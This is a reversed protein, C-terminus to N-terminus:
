PFIVVKKGDIINIGKHPKSLRQGALDYIQSGSHIVNPKNITIDEIATVYPETSTIECGWSPVLDSYEETDDQRILWASIVKAETNGEVYSMLTVKNIEDKFVEPNFIITTSTGDLSIYDVKESKDGSVVINLTGEQPVEAMELRIGKYNKMKLPVDDAFIDLQSWIGKFTVEHVLQKRLYEVDCSAYRGWGFCSEVNQDNSLLAKSSNVKVVYQGPYWSRLIVMELKEGIQSKDFIITTSKSKVDQTQIGKEGNAVLQLMGMEPTDALELKLGVYKDSRDENILLICDAGHGNFTVTYCDDFDDFTQLKSEYWDGYYAKLIASAEEKDYFAPLNPTMRIGGWLFSAINHANTQQLFYRSYDADKYEWEGVITPIGRSSFYNKINNFIGDVDENCGMWYTHLGFIIHNDSIDEPVKMQRMPEAWGDNPGPLASYINILLNRSLNNGGTSRVANVFSQAYDNIAKYSQEIHEPGYDGNPAIWSGYKDLMENYGEFVLHEDYDKFEEAIQRWIYEFREHNQDYNDKEARIWAASHDGTDHHVDLICYMGQDIVYDVVEHVRKMWAPDIDYSDWTSMDWIYVEEGNENKTKTGRFGSTHPYWTVPVRIAGFGAKRMIKMLEPKTVPADWATEYDKPEAKTYLEIWMSGESHCDLTNCLNWGIKMNKVAEAATEFEASQAKIGQSFLLIFLISLLRINM